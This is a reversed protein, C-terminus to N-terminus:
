NFVTKLWTGVPCAFSAEWSDGAAVAAACKDPDTDPIGVAEGIGAVTGTVLGTAVNVGAKSADRAVGNLGRYAVYVAAGAGLGLAALILMKQTNMM